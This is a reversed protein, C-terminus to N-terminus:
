GAQQFFRSPTTGLTNKFMAIFASPSAYGVDLAVRTVPLGEALWTMAALLRAQQRWRGFPMGTELVFLREVTRPSAGARRALKQLSAEDGPAERVALAVRLARPDRPMPLALPMATVETVLDVLLGAVRDDHAVRTDLKGRRACYVLLERLLPPVEVVCTRALGITVRESFYVTHMAVEGRMAVRHETEAPLWVGRHPPVVWSGVATDVVMVGASAHLLQGWSHAHFDLVFGDPYRAGLARVAPEVDHRSKSM